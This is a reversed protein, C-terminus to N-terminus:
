GLYSNKAIKLFFLFFKKVPGTFRVIASNMASNFFILILSFLLIMSKGFDL